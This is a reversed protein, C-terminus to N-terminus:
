KQKLRWIYFADPWHQPDLEDVFDLKVFMLSLSSSIL